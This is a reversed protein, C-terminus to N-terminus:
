SRRERLMSKKEAPGERSGRCRSATTTTTTTTTDSIRTFRSLPFGRRKLGSCSKTRRWLSAFFVMLIGFKGGLSARSHVTIKAKRERERERRSREQIECSPDSDCHLECESIANLPPPPLSFPRHKITMAAARAARRPVTCPSKCLPSVAHNASYTLTEHFFHWQQPGM